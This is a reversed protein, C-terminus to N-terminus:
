EAEILRLPLNDVAMRVQEVFNKLGNNEIVLGFHEALVCLSNVDEEHPKWGEGHYIRLLGIVEGRSKIPVSLLSSIGERRAADPYQIRPDGPCDDVFVPVGKVFACHKEDVVIPGKHLYEDSLGYSGVHVMQGEREDLLLVCCGRAGFTRATGEAIHSILLDLDEYTSIAHSIAKFERLRFRRRTEGTM